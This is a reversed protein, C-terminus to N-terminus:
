GDIEGNQMAMLKSEDDPMYYFVAGDLKVDGGWYNENRSVEVTSEPVFSKVVFPGTAVPANDIDKSADLDLIALEPTALENLMTPYVEPTTITFVADSTAKYEFDALYAASASISLVPVLKREDQRGTM